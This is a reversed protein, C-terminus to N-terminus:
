CKEGPFEDEACDTAYDMAASAWTQVNSIHWRVDDRATRPSVLLNVERISDSLSDVCVSIGDLCDEVTEREEKGKTARLEKSIYSRTSQARDLSVSLAVQSMQLPSPITDM